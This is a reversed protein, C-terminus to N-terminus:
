PKIRSYKEPHSFKELRISIDDIMDAIKMRLERGSHPTFLVAIALGIAAGAILGTAFPKYNKHDSMEGEQWKLINL